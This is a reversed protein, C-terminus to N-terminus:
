APSVPDHVFTEARHPFQRIRQIPYASGDVAKCHNFIPKGADLAKHGIGCDHVSLLLPLQLFHDARHSLREELRLFPFQGLSLTKGYAVVVELVNESNRDIGHQGNLLHLIRDVKESFAVPM